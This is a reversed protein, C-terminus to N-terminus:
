PKATGPAAGSSPSAQAPASPGPQPPRVEESRPMGPLWIKQAPKVFLKAALARSIINAACEAGAETLAAESRPVASGDKIRDLAEVAEYHGIRPIGAQRQVDRIARRINRYHANGALSRVYRMGIIVVDVHHAKLWAVTDALESKLENVPTMAIGDAVGVQWFVVDPNVLAVENRIRQSADRVLEGSVGRDVIEVDLGKFAGELFTEVLSYIGKEQERLGLPTTGLALVVIKKRERLAKAVNPLSATAAGAEGAERCVGSGARQPQAQAHVPAWAGAVVVAALAWVLKSVATM